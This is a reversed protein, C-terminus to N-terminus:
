LSHSSWRPIWNWDLRRLWSLDPRRLWRRLPGIVLLTVAGLAFLPLYHSYPAYRFTVQHSGEPVAVGVFSPAVMQTKAEVGDVTVQWRPDYTSKLLVVAPRNAMVRASFVGDAPASSEIGVTGAPGPPQSGPPVTPLAAPAGDFSVTPFQRAGLQASQLFAASQRGINARDAVIPPGITDVVELYGTSDVQWLAHRGARAILTASTSPMRNAPLVLYRINFLDYQAPNKDDFRVEVDSSLSQTNLWMGIADLQSTELVSYVPVSGITYQHGWNTKTGAYVRGPGQMRAQLLVQNLAVGDATDQMEQGAIWEAGLENYDALQTWAPYLFATALALAAVGPLVIRPVAPWGAILSRTLRVVQSALWALGVGALLIGALHVGNLYRHFPIDESGPLISLLPGLTPRGFFLLLSLTFVGILARAREDSRFRYVCVGLGIALLVTVVPLRGADFIQGTALWSLVQPAGYSDFWFTGRYFEIDGAWRSDTLLPVIVWSAVLVSGIGVIAARRLNARWDSPAVLVWVAISLLALYGTLFHVAITLAIALCALVYSGKGRVARFGFGWALPLLWMGWLASYMGLGRWTYSSQEYGYGTVSILVPAIIAAAAAAWRELGLLRASLYVSVPWSALLLYLLWQFAQEPSGVLVSVYATVIHSLSQYHHFQALGLSLYPFWGDLPVKGESIKQSAWRVMLLHLASDNLNMVVTTEARLLWLNLLVALGAVSPPAAHALWAVERAV